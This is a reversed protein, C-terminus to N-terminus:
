VVGDVIDEHEHGDQGASGPDTLASEDTLSPYALGALEAVGGGSPPQAIGHELQAPDLTPGPAGPDLIAPDITEGPVSADLLNPDVTPGSENPDLLAPDLTPGPSTPDLLSPDLTPGPLNPDFLSPDLTPGPAAPDLLNQLIFNPNAGPPTTAGEEGYGEVWPGYIGSGDYGGPTPAGEQDIPPLTDADTPQTATGPYGPQQNDPNIGIEDPVDNGDLDPGDGYEGPISNANADPLGGPYGATGGDASVPVGSGADAIATGWGDSNPGDPGDVSVNRWTNGVGIANGANGGSPPIPVVVDDVPQSPPLDFTSGKEDFEFDSVDSGDGTIV